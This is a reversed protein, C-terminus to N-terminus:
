PGGEAALPRGNLDGVGLERLSVDGPLQIEDLPIWYDVSFQHRAKGQDQGALWTPVFGPVQSSYNAVCIEQERPVHPAQSRGVVLLRKGRYEDGPTGTRWNIAVKITMAVGQKGHAEWIPNKPLV